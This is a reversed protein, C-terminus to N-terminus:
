TSANKRTPCKNKEQKGPQKIARVVGLLMGIIEDGAAWKTYKALIKLIGLGLIVVFGSGQILDFMYKDLNFLIDM